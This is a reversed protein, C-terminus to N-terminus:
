KQAPVSPNTALHADVDSLVDSWSGVGNSCNTQHCVNDAWAKSKAFSYPPVIVSIQVLQAWTFKKGTKPDTYLQAKKMKKDLDKYMHGTGDDVFYSKHSISFRCYGHDGLNACVEQDPPTGIISALQCGSLALPFLVWILLTLLNLWKM